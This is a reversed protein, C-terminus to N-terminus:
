KKSEIVYGGSGGERQLSARIQKDVIDGHAADSADRIEEDDFVEVVDEVIVSERSTASTVMSQGAPNGM